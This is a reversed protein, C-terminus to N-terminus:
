TSVSEQTGDVGARGEDTTGGSVDVVEPCGNVAALLNLGHVAFENKEAQSVSSETAM